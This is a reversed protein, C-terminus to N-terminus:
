RKLPCFFDCTHHGVSIFSTNERAHTHARARAAKLPNTDMGSAHTTSLKRSSQYLSTLGGSGRGSPLILRSCCLCREPLRGTIFPPLRARESSRYRTVGSGGRERGM